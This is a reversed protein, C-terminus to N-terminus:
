LLAAVWRRTRCLCLCHGQLSRRHKQVQGLSGGALGGAGERHLSSMSATKAHRSLHRTRPTSRWNAFFSSDKTSQSVQCCAYYVMSVISTVPCSRTAPSPWRGPKLLPWMEPDPVTLPPQCRPLFYSLFASCIPAMGRVRWEWGATM